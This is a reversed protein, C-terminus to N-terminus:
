GLSLNRIASSRKATKTWLATRIISIRHPVTIKCCISMAPNAATVKWSILIRWPPLIRHGLRVASGSKSIGIAGIHDKDIMAFRPDTDGLYRIRRVSATQIEVGCYIDMMAVDRFGSVGGYVTGYYGYYSEARAMPTWSHEIMAVAYGNFLFGNAHPRGENIWPELLGDGTDASTFYNIVPYEKTPNVPYIFDLYLDMNLPSGDPAICDYITSAKGGPLSETYERLTMTEGTEPHVVDYHDGKAALVDLNWSDVLFEMFGALGHKDVSWYTIGMEISYGAPLIAVYKKNFATGNMHDASKCIRNRIRQISWDLDPSVTKENNRYDIVVVTMNKNTILDLVIDYDTGTGIRETNTNIVYLAVRTKDTQSGEKYYTYADYPIGIYGDSAVSESAQLYSELGAIGGTPTAALVPLAPIVLGMVLTIALLFSLSRKM